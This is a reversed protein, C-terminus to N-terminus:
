ARPGSVNTWHLAGCLAARREEGTIPGEPPESRDGEGRQLWSMAGTVSIKKKEGSDTEKVVEQAAVGM